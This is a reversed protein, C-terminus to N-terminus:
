LTIMELKHVPKLAPNYLEDTEQLEKAAVWGRTTTLFLHDETCEIINGDINVEIVEAEHSTIGANEITDWEYEATKENFSYVLIESGEKFKKSLVEITVDIEEGDIKARILTQPALCLNSSAVVRNEGVSNCAINSIDRFCMWGNGTESLSRLIRAYIKRAPEKSVIKGEAELELYRKEFADGYLLNLEPAISPDIFSWDEDNKVRKMFLDPIWNAFNLNHARREKDGTNDRLELFAMLDPHWTDLYVCASGPRRGGNHALGIPTTYNHTNKIKLDYVKGTYETKEIKEIKHFIFTKSSLSLNEDNLEDIDRNYIRENM